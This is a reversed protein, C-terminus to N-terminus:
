KLDGFDTWERYRRPFNRKGTQLSEQSPWEAHHGVNGSEVVRTALSALGTIIAYLGFQTHRAYSGSLKMRSTGDGMDTFSILGRAPAEQALQKGRHVPAGQRDAAGKFAIVKGM